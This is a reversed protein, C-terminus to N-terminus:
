LLRLQNRNLSLLGDILVRLKQHLPSDEQIILEGLDRSLYKLDSTKLSTSLSTHPLSVQTISKNPNLKIVLDASVRTIKGGVLKCDAVFLCTYMYDAKRTLNLCTFSNVTLIVIKSADDSERKSNEGHPNGSAIAKSLLGSKRMAQSHSSILQKNKRNYNMSDM